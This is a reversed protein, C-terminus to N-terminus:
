KKDDEKKVNNNDNEYNEVKMDNIGLEENQEFTREYKEKILRKDNEPEGIPFIFSNDLPDDIILTFTNKLEKLDKLKNLFEQIKNNITSDGVGFPSEKLNEYLKDIVGEVTTYMSGLSGDSSEFGIEPIIIKSSESKFLDRNLDDVTEVKLTIKAGKESIGGGGKVETTKYGCNDCKFCYIIIEKFYPITCLCSRMFGNAGCVFCNTPFSMSYKDLEEADNDDIGKTFDIIKNSIESNTKYVTFDKKKNYYSPQVQNTNIKNEKNNKDNINEKDKGMEEIQNEYSYGMSEIMEKTRDFYSVKINPDTQPAYPNEIFSNGSPDDMIFQFPFKKGELVETLKNILDKIKSIFEDGMQSYYGDDLSNKFNDRATQIFGEVTTLKGKQTSQPIELDCIPVKITCFNSKIVRRNMDSETKVTLEFHIGQPALGDSQEIENNRYGCHPCSFSMIIIDKFFPIKTMLIRSTGAKQCNMCLSEIETVPNNPDIDIFLPNQSNQSINIKQTEKQNSM